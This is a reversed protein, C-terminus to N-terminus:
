KKIIKWNSIKDEIKITLIYIGEPYSILDFPIIESVMKKRIITKGSANYLSIEGKKDNSLNLVEVSFRGETPNPYIKVTYGLKLQKFGTSSFEASNEEEDEPPEPEEPDAGGWRSIRNGANDYSYACMGQSYLAGSIFLLFLVCVLYKM